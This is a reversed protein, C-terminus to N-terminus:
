DFVDIDVDIEPDIDIDPVMDIDPDTDIDPITDIDPDADIEHDIDSGENSGEVDINDGTETDAATVNKDEGLLDISSTDDTDIANEDPKEVNEGSHKIKNAVNKTGEIATGTTAGSVAGEAAATGRGSSYQSFDTKDKGGEYYNEIIVTGGDQAPTFGERGSIGGVNSNIQSKIKNLAENIGRFQTPHYTNFTIRM